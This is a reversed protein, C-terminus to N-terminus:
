VVADHASIVGGGTRPRPLDTQVAKEQTVMKTSSGEDVLLPDYSCCVAEIPLM